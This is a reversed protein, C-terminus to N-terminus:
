GQRQLRARFNRVVADERIELIRESEPLTKVYDTFLKVAERSRKVMVSKSARIYDRVMGLAICGRLEYSFNAPHILIATRPKPHNTNSLIHTVGLIPNVLAFVDKFKVGNHPVLNYRGAPIPKIASAWSRELSYLKFSNFYLIGTLSEGDDNERILHM